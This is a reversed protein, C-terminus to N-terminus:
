ITKFKNLEHLNSMSQTNGMTARPVLKQKNDKSIQDFLTTKNKKIPKQGDM